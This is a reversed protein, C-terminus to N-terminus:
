FTSRCHTRLAVTSAADGGSLRSSGPKASRGVCWSPGDTPTSHGRYGCAAGTVCGTGRTILPYRAHGETDPEVEAVDVGFLARAIREVTGPAPETRGIVIVVAVGSWANEGTIDNFHRVRVNPPLEGTILATELGLQCVVLVEASCAEDARVELFRRVREVNARRTRNTRENAAKSTILMDATMARDTIQRVHTHPMPAAIRQPAALNTFFQRVIEVPMTADMILTPAEWSPHIDDRWIMVIAAATEESGTSQAKRLDLWPSRECPGEITRLLLEWFWALRAVSQNHITIGKCIERVLPLAMGPRVEAEIKRRWELRRADRLDAATIGVETLAARRIRGDEERQLARHVQCSIEMLDATAGTDRVPGFPGPFCIDRHADVASLRLKYPPDIGHLAASWFAEDIALSDPQSIFSPRVRFLLQHPIIWIDPDAKRQRQYGCLRYFGCEAEKYKCAHPAVSNLAGRIMTARDLERCMKEGPQAPDAAERGRYVCATIGAEALDGVIEDGLRHRPVALVGTFAAGVLVPAVRERWTRTKGLGVDVSVAQVPFAPPAPPVHADFDLV